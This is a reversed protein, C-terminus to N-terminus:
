EAISGFGARCARSKRAFTGSWRPDCRQDCLANSVQRVQAQRWGISDAQRRHQLKDSLVPLYSAHSGQRSSGPLTPQLSPPGLKRLRPFTLLAPFKMLSPPLSFESEASGKLLHKNFVFKSERGFM